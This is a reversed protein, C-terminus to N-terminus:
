FLNKEIAVIPGPCEHQHCTICSNVMANFASKREASDKVQQYDTLEKFFDNLYQQHNDSLKKSPHIKASSLQKIDTPFKLAPQNTEIQYKEKKIYTLMKKMLKEM